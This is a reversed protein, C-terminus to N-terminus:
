PGVETYFESAPDVASTKTFLSTFTNGINDLGMYDGLFFGRAVPALRSNFSAATVRTEEDWSSGSSCNETASHCHALWHDTNTGGGAANNRFDYYTVGVNGDDAVHVSPTFAQDNPNGLLPTQSVKIPTSWTLGGDTSRSLATAARGTFRGDQWAV